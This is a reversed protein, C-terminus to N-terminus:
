RVFKDNMTTKVEDFDERVTSRPCKYHPLSHNMLTPAWSVM